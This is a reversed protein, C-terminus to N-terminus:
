FMASSILIRMPEAMGRGSGRVMSTEPLDSMSPVGVVTVMLSVCIRSAMRSGTLMMTLAAM